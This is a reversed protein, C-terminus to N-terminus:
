PTGGEIRLLATQLEEESIKKFETGDHQGMTLGYRPKPPWFLHMGRGLNNGVVTRGDDLSFGLAQTFYDYSGGDIQRRRSGPRKEKAWGFVRLPYVSQENNSINASASLEYVWYKGEFAGSIEKMQTYKKDLIPVLDRQLEVTGIRGRAKSFWTGTITEKRWEDMVFFGEGPGDLVISKKDKPFKMTDFRFAVFESSDGEGFYLTAVTELDVPNKPYSDETAKVNFAFLQYKDLGEHHLYGYYQGEILAPVSVNSFQTNAKSALQPLRFQRPFTAYPKNVGLARNIARRSKKLECSDCELTKGKVLCQSSKRPAKLALEGQFPNYDAKLYNEKTCVKGKGCLVHDTRGVRGIIRYSSFLGNEDGDGGWRCAEVQMQVLEEGCEGSYSGTLTTQVPIKPWIKKANKDGENMKLQRVMQFPGEFGQTTRAIGTLKGKLLRMDDLLFGKPDENTLPDFAGEKVRYRMGKFQSSTYEHSSFKGMNVRAVARYTVIKEDGGTSFIDMTLPFKYGNSPHKIYGLYRGSSPAKLEEEQLKQPLGELGLFDSTPNKKAAQCGFVIMLSVISCLIKLLSMM